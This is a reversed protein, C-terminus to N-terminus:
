VACLHLFCIQKQSGRKSLLYKRYPFPIKSLYIYNVFSKNVEEITHCNIDDVNHKRRFLKYVKIGNVTVIWLQSTTELININRSTCHYKNCHIQMPKLHVSTWRKTNWHTISPFWNIFPFVLSSGNSDDHNELLFFFTLM